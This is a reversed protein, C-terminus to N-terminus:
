EIKDPRFEPATLVDRFIGMVEDTNETLASFSVSGFTEEISSEVSAAINELEVDLEDGTKRKTGGTRMVMGTMTALGVKNAPDCLNRTRIRAAGQVLPLEHDELLFVKMGNPLTLTDVPPIEVPKLPPFKLNKVSPVAAAAPASRAPAPTSRVPPQASRQSQN